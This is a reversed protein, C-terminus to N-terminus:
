MKEVLNQIKPIIFILLPTILLFIIVAIISGILTSQVAEHGRGELLMKHGPLVSLSNEEDPAGLYISPIADIFTNTLGMSVILIIVAIPSFYNLLMPSISLLFVALLNTHIGPTLGTIIGFLIGVLIFILLEYM